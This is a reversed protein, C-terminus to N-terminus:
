RRAPDRQRSRLPALALIARDPLLGPRRHSQRPPHLRPLTRPPRLRSREATISPPPRVRLVKPLPGADKLRFAASLNLVVHNHKLLRHRSTSAPKTPTALFVADPKLAAIENVDTASPLNLRNRFRPWVDSFRQPAADGTDRKASGSVGVIEASPRDLLVGALGRRLLRLASSSSETCPLTPLPFLRLPFLGLSPTFLLLFLHLLCRPIRCRPM